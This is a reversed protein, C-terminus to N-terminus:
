QTSKLDDQKGIYEFRKVFVGDKEILNEWMSLPRVWTDYTGYLTKYVVLEELTESHRAFGIVEYLPGKYHQYIGLPINKM